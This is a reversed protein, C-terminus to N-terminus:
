QEYKVSRVSSIKNQKLYDKFLCEIPLINIILYKCIKHAWYSLLM